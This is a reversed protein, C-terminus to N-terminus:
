VTMNCGRCYDRGGRGGIYFTFDKLSSLFSDHEKDLIDIIFEKVLALVLVALLGWTWHHLKYAATLVAGYGILAHAQYAVAPPPYNGNSM